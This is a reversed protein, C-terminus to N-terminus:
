DRTGKDGKDTLRQSRFGVNGKGGHKGVFFEAEAKMNGLALHDVEQADLPRADGALHALTEARSGAAPPAPRKQELKPFSM